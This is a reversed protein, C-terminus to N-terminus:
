SDRKGEGESRDERRSGKEGGSPVTLDKKEM